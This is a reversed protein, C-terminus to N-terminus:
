RQIGKWSQSSMWIGLKNYVYDQWHPIYVWEVFWVKPSHTLRKKMQVYFNSIFLVIYTEFCHTTSLLEHTHFLVNSYSYTCLCHLQVISFNVHVCVNYIFIYSFLCSCQCWVQHYIFIFMIMSLVGLFIPVYVYVYGDYQFYQFISLFIFLLASWISCNYLFMM